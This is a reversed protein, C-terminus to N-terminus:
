AQVRDEVFAPVRLLPAPPATLIHKLSWENLFNNNIPFHWKWFFDVVGTARSQAVQNRVFHRVVELAKATDGFAANNASCSYRTDEHAAGSFESMAVIASTGNLRLTDRASYQWTAADAGDIRAVIEGVSASGNSCWSEGPWAVYHHLDIVAWAAREDASTVGLWWSRVDDDGMAILNMLLKKGAAPLSSARFLELAITLTDLHASSGGAMGLGPENMPTIGYLGAFATANRTALAEMWGILGGVISRFNDDAPGEWFKPPLPWVGNYTGSSSGGPFAHLDLLVQMGLGAARALVDTVRAEPLALWRCPKDASTGCASGHFPDDVLVEGLHPPLTVNSATGQITLPEDRWNFCWSIPLRIYKIGYSAITALEDAVALYNDRHAKLSAVPTPAKALLDVESSFFFGPLNPDINQSWGVAGQSAPTGVHFASTSDSGNKGYFWDELVLWGGLNVGQPVLDTLASSALTLM